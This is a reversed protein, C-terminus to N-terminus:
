CPMTLTRVQVDRRVRPLDLFEYLQVVLSPHAHALRSEIHRRIRNRGASNSVILQKTEMSLLLAGLVLDQLFWGMQDTQGLSERMASVMTSKVSENMPLRAGEPTSLRCLLLHFAQGSQLCRQHERDLLSQFTEEDHEAPADVATILMPRMM